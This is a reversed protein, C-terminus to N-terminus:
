ETPERMLNLLEKRDVAPAAAAAPKAPATPAPNNVPPASVAPRNVQTPKPKVVAVTATAAPAVPKTAPAAAPPSSKKAATVPRSAGGGPVGSMQTTRGTALSRISHPGEARVNTGDIVILTTDGEGKIMRGGQKVVANRGQLYAAEPTVVIEPAQAMIPSSIRKVLMAGGTAVYENETTDKEFARTKIRSGLLEVVGIRQMQSFRAARQSDSLNFLSLDTEATNKPGACSVTLVLASSAMVVRSFPVINAFPFNM